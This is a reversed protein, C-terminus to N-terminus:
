VTKNIFRLDDIFDPFSRSSTSMFSRNSVIEFTGSIDHSYNTRNEIEKKDFIIQEAEEILFLTGEIYNSFYSEFFAKNEFYERNDLHVDSRDTYYITELHNALLLFIEVKINDVPLGSARQISRM